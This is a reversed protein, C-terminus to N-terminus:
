HSQLESTHEESRTLQQFRPDHFAATFANKAVDAVLPITASLAGMCGRLKGNIRLTVFTARLVQLESPHQEVDVDLPSRHKLGWQISSAAMDLLLRRHGPQLDLELDNSSMPVM